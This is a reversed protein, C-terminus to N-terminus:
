MRQSVKDCAAMAIYMMHGISVFRLFHLCKKPSASQEPAQSTSALPLCSSLATLLFTGASPLSKLLSALRSQQLQVSTPLVAKTAHVQVKFVSTLASVTTNHDSPQDLSMGELVDLIRQGAGQFADCPTPRASFARHCFNKQASSLTWARTPKRCACNCSCHLALLQQLQPVLDCDAHISHM